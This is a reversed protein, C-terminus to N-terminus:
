HRDRQAMEAGPPIVCFQAPPIAVAPTIPSLTNSGILTVSLTNAGIRTVYSVVVVVVVVVSCNGAFLM